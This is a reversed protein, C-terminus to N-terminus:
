LNHNRHFYYALDPFEDLFRSSTIGILARLFYILVFDAWTVGKGVVNKAGSAKFRADLIPALKFGFMENDEESDSEDDDSDVSNQGNEFRQILPRLRNMEAELFNVIM